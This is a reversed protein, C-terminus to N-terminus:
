EVLFTYIKGASTANASINAGPPLLGYEGRKMTGFKLRYIQKALRESEFPIQSRHTGTSINIRGRALEVERRDKKVEFTVCLFEAPDTGEALKVVFDNTPALRTTSHQSTIWGNLKANAFIGVMMQKGRATRLNLIEPPINVYKGDKLYYVGLEDPLPVGEKTTSAAEVKPAAEAAVPKAVAGANKALMAAVIKDSAGATKLAIVDDTSVSFSSAQTKIMTIITEEGLGAKVLKLISENTLTEQAFTATSALLLIWLFARRMMITGGHISKYDV